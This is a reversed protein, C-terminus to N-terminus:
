LLSCYEYALKGFALGSVLVLTREQTLVETFKQETIMAKLGAYLPYAIATTVATKALIEPTNELITQLDM